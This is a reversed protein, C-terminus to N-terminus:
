NLLSTKNQADIPRNDDIHDCEDNSASKHLMERRGVGIILLSLATFSIGGIIVYEYFTGSTLIKEFSTQLKETAYGGGIITGLCFFVFINKRNSSINQSFSKRSRAPGNEIWTLPLGKSTRKQHPTQDVVDDNSSPFYKKSFNEIFCDVEHNANKAKWQRWGLYVGAIYGFAFIGMAVTWAPITTNKITISTISGEVQTVSLGSWVISALLLFGAGVFVGQGLIKFWKIQRRLHKFVDESSKCFPLCKYILITGGLLLQGILGFRNDIKQSTNEKNKDLTKAAWDLDAACIIVYQAFFAFCGIIVGASLLSGSLINAHLFPPNTFLYPKIFDSYLIYAALLHAVAEGFPFLQFVSYRLTQGLRSKQKTYKRIGILENPDSVQTGLDSIYYKASRCVLSLVSLAAFGLAFLLSTKWREVTQQFLAAGADLGAAMTTCVLFVKSLFSLDIKKAQEGKEEQHKQVLLRYTYWLIFVGCFSAFGLSGYVSHVRIAESFVAGAMFIGLTSDLSEFAAATLM